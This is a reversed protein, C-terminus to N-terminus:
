SGEVYRGYRMFHKLPLDVTAKDASRQSRAFVYGGKDIVLSLVTYVHRIQTNRPAYLWMSGLRPIRLSSPM